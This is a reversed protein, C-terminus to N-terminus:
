STPSCASRARPSSRSTRCRSSSSPSRPSRARSGSAPACSRDARRGLALQPGGPAAGRLDRDALRRPRRGGRPLGPRGRRGLRGRHVARARDDGGGGRADAAHDGALVKVKEDRVKDAEFSSPPEMCVLTLLQLMHNQVLDRLAGSQDYYGARSGIGIDEAATIQIHDIYNRNWVPEFMFNAFRFAMVNQVTEKGLYHDIRFVQSSASRRPSTKQLERASELDTGFPKEIIVRVDRRAATCAPRRSRARHDGPLVGARDLPLLRPQAPPPRRTSSTSRRSLKGYGDPTTSRSASTPSGSSCARSCRRTTPRAARSSRRDVRARLRPVRRRVPRPALRRDPQLARAARGRPRPQLAGAAAQPPRPRRHRRLHRAHDAPGPLRELGEVLPNEEEASPSPWADAGGSAREVAHGGFQNRLAALVRHTYDGNGRSYFRAYLAATIVPTPVDHDIADIITWRGEGSDSVHGASGRSTTARRRSRASPWSACGRACSRAATGCGRSRRSTSRSRSKHMLEFGEAYAQMIGYEVGNHVMKVFHGAGADGFHRWGDPPALVDLIPALREVSEEHGGVMMCYGVELGWVGGSTGVDVYHIGRERRARGRPARRRALQHQRRRRDHRGRRAARRAEQRDARDPRRGPGDGLRDAAGRAQLRAGRALRRRDRRPGRGRSRTRTSTSRSSRTTRTATSATSWTAAWRGSARRLRAADSSRRGARVADLGHTLAADAPRRRGARPDPHRVHVARRPGRPGGAARRRDAPVGRRGPRGQPVPRDLAPLAPRLRLHDRRPARARRARAARAARRSPTRTPCTPWSRWTARRSSRRRAARRADGADLEPPGEDLVRKTNDKAEQVNPQDFPNIGLVWGAVATAFESLFFVRGLDAPGDADLTFVPTGPPAAARSRGTVEVDGTRSTCSCATTATSPPRVLPEDAIPLIGRGEKGTSEAVLQEAWLGFSELPEDVVFTLKDRGQLALEGLAVGLELGPNDQERPLGGDGRPRGELVAGVDYGAIAAPVLGFYSLASYRGGIDPTTRSCAGSATSPASSRSRPAPTPSPSTTRATARCRTSTSSSRCRRSRAAPSRPSSSCRRTSTSPTARRASRTPTRPTSCTCASGRRRRVLPPVGGAGLSSGGM